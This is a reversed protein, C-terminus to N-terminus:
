RTPDYPKGEADIFQQAPRDIAVAGLETIGWWQGCRCVATPAAQAHIMAVMGNWECVRKCVCTWSVSFVGAKM